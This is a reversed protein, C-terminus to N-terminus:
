KRCLAPLWVVLEIPDVDHAIIVQYLTLILLNSHHNLFFFILRLRARTRLLCLAAIHLPHLLPLFHRDCFPFRIGTM